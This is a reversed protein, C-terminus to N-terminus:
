TNSDTIKVEEMGHDIEKQKIGLLNDIREKDNKIIEVLIDSFLSQCRELRTVLSGESFGKNSWSM